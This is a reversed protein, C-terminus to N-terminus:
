PSKGHVEDVWERSIWNPVLRDFDKDTTLLPMQTARSTAAIWVDNKGMQQSVSVTAHEIDAYAAYIDPHNIDIVVLEEFFAYLADVKATGWGFIRTLALIEGVTVASIPCERLSARLAYQQDLYQALRNGRILAVLINTDLLYNSSAAM